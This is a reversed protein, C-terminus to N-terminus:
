LLPLFRRVLSDHGVSDIFKMVDALASSDLATSGTKLAVYHILSTLSDDRHTVIKPLGIPRQAWQGGTCMYWRRLRHLGQPGVCGPPGGPGLDLDRRSSAEGPPGPTGFHERLAAVLNRADVRSRQDEEEDEDEDQSRRAKEDSEQCLSQGAQDEPAV